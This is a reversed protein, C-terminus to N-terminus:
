SGDGRKSLNTNANESQLTQPGKRLPLSVQLERKNKDRLHDPWEADKANTTYSKMQM